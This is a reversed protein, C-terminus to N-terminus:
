AEAATSLMATCYLFTHVDTTTNVKIFLKELSATLTTQSAHELFEGFAGRLDKPGFWDPAGYALPVDGDPLQRYSQVTLAKLRVKPHLGKFPNNQLTPNDLTYQLSAVAPAFLERTTHSSAWLNRRDTAGSM